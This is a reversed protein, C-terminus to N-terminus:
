KLRSFGDGGLTKGSGKPIVFFIIAQCGSTLFSISKKQTNPLCSSYKGNRQCTVSSNFLNQAAFLKEQTVSRIGLSSNRCFSARDFTPIETPPPPNSVRRKQSIRALLQRRIVSCISM